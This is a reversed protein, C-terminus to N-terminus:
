RFDSIPIRKWKDKIWVYLYNDDYSLELKTDISHTNPPKNISVDQDIFEFLNVNSNNGFLEKFLNISIFGSSKWNPSSLELFTENSNILNKDIPQIRM